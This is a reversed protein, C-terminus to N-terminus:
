VETEGNPFEWGFCENAMEMTTVSCEDMVAPNDLFIRDIEGFDKEVRLGGNDETTSFYGWAGGWTSTYIADCGLEDRIARIEFCIEQLRQGLLHRREESVRNM